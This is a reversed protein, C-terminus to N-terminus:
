NKSQENLKVNPQLTKLELDSKVSDSVHEVPKVGQTATYLVKLFDYFVIKADRDAIKFNPDEKSKTLNLILSDGQSFQALYSEVHKFDEHGIKKLGYSMSNPDSIIKYNYANVFNEFFKKYNDFQMKVNATSDVNEFNLQGQIL